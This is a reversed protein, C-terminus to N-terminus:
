KSLAELISSYKEICDAIRQQEQYPPLPFKLLRVSDSKLNKVTSGSALEVFLAHICPSSLAYFLFDQQVVNPWPHLVLWGDHICGSIKLIYPRGFSMSNSLLFDGPEVFRSKSVGDKTIKEKTQIIYKSGPKTDGIKIWNIGDPSNTIYNEIPRPSGGRAVEAIFGLNIWSWSDPLDFPEQIINDTKKDDMYWYYCAFTSTLRFITNKQPM